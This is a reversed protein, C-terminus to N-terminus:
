PADTRFPVAPLGELNFLNVEPANAWGFRVSTPQAISPHSVEVTDGHVSAAAPLFRGDASAITFGTLTTEPKLGSGTSTFSLIAKGNQVEMSKFIPGSWTIQEGYAVARAARALRRGVPEKVPPHINDPSGHDTIVIMGTRPTKKWTDTQIERLEPPIANFPPLQVFLFPFDGRNWASRWDAILTPFLPAYQAPNGRNAEGQYWIVRRFAYPQLPAIMGNYLSSPGRGKPNGALAPTKPRKKGAAVASDFKAKAIEYAAQAKAPDYNLESQKHREILPKLQPHAGLSKESIWKDAATGGVHSAILGIPVGLTKQLDRGFYYGVASFSAVNKADCPKWTASAAQSPTSSQTTPVKFLRILPERIKNAVERGHTSKAVPWEMNSQGACIWVEGILISELTITHSGSITLTQPTANAPMPKLRVLWKGDQATTTVSQGAFTVTIKEDGDVTGWVPVETDRQLVAHSSFLSNPVILARAISASGLLWATTLLAMQLKASTGSVASSRPHRSRRMLGVEQLVLMANIMRTTGAHDVRFISKQKRILNEAHHWRSNLSAPLTPLFSV